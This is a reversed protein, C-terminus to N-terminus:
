LRRPVLFVVLALAALRPYIGLALGFAGVVELTRASLMLFPLLSAPVGHETLIKAALAQSIIGLGSMLFIIAILVRSLALVYRQSYSM